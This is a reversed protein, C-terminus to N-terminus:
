LVAESGLPSSSLQGCQRVTKPLYIQCLIFVISQLLTLHALKYMAWSLHAANGPPSSSFYSTHLNPLYQALEECVVCLTRRTFPISKTHNSSTHNQCIGPPMFYLHFRVFCLCIERSVECFVLLVWAFGCSFGPLDGCFGPM